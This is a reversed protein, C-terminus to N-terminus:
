HFSIGISALSGSFTLLWQIVHALSSMCPMCQCCRSLSRFSESYLIQTHVAMIDGQELMHRLLINTKAFNESREKQVVAMADFLKDMRGKVYPNHQVCNDSFYKLGEKPKGESILRFLDSLIEKRNMSEWENCRRCNEEKRSRPKTHLPHNRKRPRARVWMRDQAVESLEGYKVLKKKAEKLYYEPTRGTKSYINDIYAKYTM